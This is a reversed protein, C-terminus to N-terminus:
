VIDPWDVVAIGIALLIIGACLAVCAPSYLFGLRKVLRGLFADPDALPVRLYLLNGRVRRPTRAREPEGPAPELLGARRLSALFRDLAERPLEADFRREADRLVDDVRTAGDCHELLFRDVAGLRFFERRVPDM